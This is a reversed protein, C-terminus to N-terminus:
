NGCFSYSSPGVTALSAMWPISNPVAEQGNVIRKGARLRCHCDAKNLELSSTPGDQKTRPSTNSRRPLQPRQAGRPRSSSRQFYPPLYPEWDTHDAFIDHIADDIEHAINAWFSEQGCSLGIIAFLLFASFVKM